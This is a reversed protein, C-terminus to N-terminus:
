NVAFGAIALLWLGHWVFGLSITAVVAVTWVPFVAYWWPRMLTEPRVLRHMYYGSSHRLRALLLQARERRSADSVFREVLADFADLSRPEDACRLRSYLMQQGICSETRDLEAFVDDMLLDTWTRDDLASEVPYSQFFDAVAEIDLRDSRPKGWDRRIRAILKRRADWSSWASLVVFAVVVTFAPWM